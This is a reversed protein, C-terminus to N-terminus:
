SITIVKGKEAVSGVLKEYSNGFRCSCLDMLAVVALIVYIKRACSEFWLM